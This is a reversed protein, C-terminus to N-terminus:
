PKMAVETVICEDRQVHVAKQALKASLLMSAMRDVAEYCQQVSRTGFATEAVSTAVSGPGIQPTSACAEIKLWQRDRTADPACLFEDGSTGSDFVTFWISGDLLFKLANVHKPPTNWAWASLTILMFLVFLLATRLKTM